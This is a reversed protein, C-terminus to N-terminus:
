VVSCRYGDALVSLRHLALGITLTGKGGLGLERWKKWEKNRINSGLGVGLGFPGVSGVYPKGGGVGGDQGLASGGPRVTAGPANNKAAEKALRNLLDQTSASLHPDLNARPPQTALQRRLLPALVRSRYRKPTALALLETRPNLAM